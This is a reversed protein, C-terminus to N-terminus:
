RLVRFTVRRSPPHPGNALADQAGRSLTRVDLNEVESELAAAVARARALGLAANADPTGLDDTHGTVELTLRQRREGAAADLRAIRTRADALAADPPVAGSEDFQLSFTEVGSRAADIDDRLGSVDLRRVGPVLPLIERARAVWSTDERAGSARVTGDAGARLRVGPPTGFAEAARRAVVSTDTSFATVWRADVDDADLGAPALLTAPDPALPDRAGVVVLRGGERDTRLVDLGPTADLAEVYASERSRADWWRYGGWAALGLALLLLVLLKPSLGRAPTEAYEADLLDELVSGAADFPATEGTFTTLADGLRSHISECAAKLRQRYAEPPHGRIVAALIARPGPEIWVNLDGVEITDLADGEDVSFSDGVFQRVATLMASVLDGDEGAGPVGSAVVHKLLLGTERHVLLVEEVRYQLTHRLVVEGFSLGSRRAEMRWKLGRWSLGYNVSQNVSELSQAMAHQISRRIAPGIIPFIADVVPQPNREVSAKLGREIPGALADGLAHDETERWLVAEPLVRAVARPDMEPPPLENRVVRDLAADHDDGLLLRRLTEEASAEPPSGDGSPADAGGAALPAFPPPDPRPDSPM